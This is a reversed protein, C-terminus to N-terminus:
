FESPLLRPDNKEAAERAMRKRDRETVAVMMFILAFAGALLAVLTAFEKWPMDALGQEKLHGSLIFYGLRLVLSGGAFLIVLGLVLQVASIMMVKFPSALPKWM